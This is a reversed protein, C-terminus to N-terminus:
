KGQSKNVADRVKNVLDIGKGAEEGKKIVFSDIETFIKDLEIKGSSIKSLAGYSAAQADKVDVASQLLGTISANAQNLTLYNEELKSILFIRVAELDEKAKNNKQNLKLIDNAVDTLQGRNLTIDGSPTLTKFYIQVANQLAVDLEKRKAEIYINVLNVQSQHQKKIGVGIEASLTVSQPPIVACGSIYLAFTPILIRMFKM